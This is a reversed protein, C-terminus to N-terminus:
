NQITTLINGEFYLYCDLNYVWQEYIVNRTITRNINYPEGWAEICMEKTFGIRVQGDLILIANEKGYKKILYNKHAQLKKAEEAARKEEAAAKEEAKKKEAEKERLVEERKQKGDVISNMNNSDIPLYRSGNASSLCMVYKYEPSKTGINRIIISDCIYFDNWGNKNVFIEKTEFKDKISSIFNADSNNKCNAILNKEFVIKSIFDKLYFKDHGDQLVSWSDGNKIDVYIQYPSIPMRSIVSGKEDKRILYSYFSSHQNNLEIEATCKTNSGKYYLPERQHSEIFAFEDGDYYYLCIKRSAKTESMSTTEYVDWSVKYPHKRQSVYMALSDNGKIFKILLNKNNRLKVDAVFLKEGVVDGKYLNKKTFKSKQLTTHSYLCKESQTNQGLRNSWEVCDDLLVIQKGKLSFVDTPYQPITDNNAITNLSFAFMTIFFAAIRNM